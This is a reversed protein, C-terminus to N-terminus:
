PTNKPVTFWFTAGEGVASEVGIEGGMADVIRKTIGLGLGTSSEGATPRASLRAFDQFLRERDKATIGPGQDKIEIRIASSTDVVTVTITSQSPSYKVANSLLNDVVQRLRNPDTFATIEPMPNLLITSNKRQALQDQRYVVTAFFTALDIQELKLEIKGAEIRSIDLLENLMNVMYSIQDRMDYLMEQRTEAPLTDEPMLLLEVAMQINSLPNRLDHSAMGLFTNKLDSLYRLQTNQREIEARQEIIESIFAGKELIISLQGAIRQFIEVHVNKYANREKSSFFMFGVAVGNAILPCTLSSLIGEKLILQSSESQPKQRAYAELDNIVRPVKSKMVTELSSGTLRATYGRGLFAQEQDTRAWRAEVWQEQGDHEILSFGIRDYPILDRFAEYVYELIDDLLIGSNIQQTIQNLKENQRQLEAIQVALHQLAVGLKGIEDIPTVPLQIQYKQQIIDEIAQHYLTIREDTTIPSPPNVNEM